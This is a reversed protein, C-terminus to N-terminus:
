FIRLVYCQCHHESPSSVQASAEDHREVTVSVPRGGVLAAVATRTTAWRAATATTLSLRHSAGTPAIAGGTCNVAAAKGHAAITRHNLRRRRSRWLWVLSPLALLTVAIAPSRM